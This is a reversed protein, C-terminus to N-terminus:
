YLRLILEPKATEGDFALDVVERINRVLEERSDGQTFLDRNGEPWHSRATYGRDIKDETVVFIIERMRPGPSSIRGKTAGDGNKNM